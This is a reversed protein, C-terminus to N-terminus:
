AFLQFGAPVGWSQFDEFIEESDEIMGENFSALISDDLYKSPDTAEDLNRYIETLQDATLGQFGLENSQELHSLEIELRNQYNIVDENHLVDENVKAFAESQVQQEIPEIQINEPVLTSEIPEILMGSDFLAEDIQLVSASNPQISRLEEELNFSTNTIESADKIESSKEANDSLTDSIETTAVNSNTTRFKICDKLNYLQQYLLFNYSTYFLYIGILICIAVLQLILPFKGKFFNLNGRYLQLLFCVLTCIGCMITTVRLYFEIQTRKLYIVKTSIENILRAPAILVLVFIMRIFSYLTSFDYDFKKETYKMYYFVGGM